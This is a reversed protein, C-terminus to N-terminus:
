SVPLDMHRSLFHYSKINAVTKDGTVLTDESLLIYKITDGHTIRIKWRAVSNTSCGFFIM